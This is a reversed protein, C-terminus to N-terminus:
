PAEPAIAPYFTRWVKGELDAFAIKSLDLINLQDLRARIFELATPLKKTHGYFYLDFPDGQKMSDFHGLDSATLEQGLIEPFQPGARLIVAESYKMQVCVCTFGLKAITELWEICDNALAPDTHKPSQDAPGDTEFRPGNMLPNRQSKKLANYRELL